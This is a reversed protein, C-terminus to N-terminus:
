RDIRESMSMKQAMANLPAALRCLDGLVVTAESEEKKQLSIARLPDETTRV